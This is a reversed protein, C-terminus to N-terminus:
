QEGQAEVEICKVIETDFDTLGLMDDDLNAWGDLRTLRRVGNVAVNYGIHEAVELDDHLNYLTDRWDDDVADLVAQDLEIEVLINVQVQFTRKDAM